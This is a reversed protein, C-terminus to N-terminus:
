NRYRLSLFAALLQLRENGTLGFRWTSFVWVITFALFWGITNLLTIPQDSLSYLLFILCLPVASFVAPWVTRGVDAARISLRKYLNVALYILGPLMALALSLPIWAMGYLKGLVYASGVGLVGSVIAIPSWYGLKGVALTSIGVLHGNVQIFVFLALAVALAQGGFQGAGVWLTVLSELFFVTGITAPFALLLLYRFLRLFVQRVAALDGGGIIQNMGPYTHDLIGSILNILLSAFMKTTYFVSATAAGFLTGAILNDSGLFLVVSLNVGWYSFGFHAMKKGLKLNGITFNARYHPYRQHFIMRQVGAKLAESLIVAGVLGPIGFGLSVFGLTSLLRFLNAGIGIVNMTAMDQTANLATNFIYLPTRSVAWAAMMFLALQADGHIAPSDALFLQINWATAILALAVLLNTILLVNRGVTLLESFREGGEGPRHSQALYRGLAVAFGFDLLISYGVIQSVVAYGGLTEQGSRTLILPALILQFLMTVFHQAVGTASGRVARQTRSSM